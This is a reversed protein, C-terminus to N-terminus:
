QFTLLVTRYVCPAPSLHSGTLPDSHALWWFPCSFTRPVVVLCRIFGKVATVSSLQRSLTLMDPSGATNAQQAETYSGSLSLSAQDKSLGEETMRMQHPISSLAPFYLLPGAEM